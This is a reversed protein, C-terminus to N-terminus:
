SVPKQLPSPTHKSRPVSQTKVHLETERNDQLPEILQIGAPRLGHGATYLCLVKSYTVEDGARSHFIRECKCENALSDYLYVFTYQM